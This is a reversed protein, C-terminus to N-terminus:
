VLTAGVSSPHDIRFARINIRLGFHVNLILPGGVGTMGICFGILMGLVFRGALELLTLNFVVM